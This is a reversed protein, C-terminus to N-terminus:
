GRAVAPRQPDGVLEADGRDREGRDGGTDVPVREVLRGPDGDVRDPLGVRLDGVDPEHQEVLLRVVGEGRGDASRKAPSHLAAGAGDHRRRAAHARGRERASAVCPTPGRRYSAPPSSLAPEYSSEVLASAPYAG